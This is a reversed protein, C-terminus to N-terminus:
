KLLTMKKTSTYVTGDIGKAELSYFYVGSTVSNLNLRFDHNGATLDNDVLTMIEKGLINYIRVKVKADVPLSFSISTTPNFPNPYNQNLAFSVPASFLVNVVTSYAYSGNLDVQKLRYYYESGSQVSRDSYSYNQTNTTTGAGKIFGITSFSKKDISRQVEFGSNNTETSTSWNLIVANDTTKATFSTFEVPVTGPPLFDTAYYRPLIQLGNTLSGGTSFQSALGIIDRPWAPETQGDIDTDSDIRFDVTDVGDTMKLTASANAAPWTGSAKNLSVFAVLSGEYMEANAKYHALSMVTPAPIENSDSIFVLSAANLPQLQTLGNFQGIKGTIIYKDGLAIVPTTTGALYETIGATGDWFYYSHHTTQFNPGLNIGEVTVTDNLRDPIFNNDLDQRAQAITLFNTKYAAFGNNSILTFVTFYGNGNDVLAADGTANANPNYTNTLLFSAFLKPFKINTTVDYMRCQLGEAPDNKGVIAVYKKGTNPAFYVVNHWGSSVVGGNITDVGAGTSAILMTNTGAGNVWINSSLGSTVPSIGGRALGATVTISDQKVLNDGSPVFRYILPSGSGSAFVITESGSGSIGIIDGTRYGVYGEFAVTPAASENAWRYIKFVNSAATVLNSTYIVGESTVRIYNIAFTGGSVGTMNLLGLSDGTTPNIIFINAAGTRSSVLLHGTAPNYALSRMNNDNAVFSYSGVNKEWLKVYQANVEPLFFILLLFLILIKKM